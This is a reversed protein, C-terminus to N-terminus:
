APERVPLRGRVPVPGYGRRPIYLGVAGLCVEHPPPQDRLWRPRPPPTATLPRPRIRQDRRRERPHLRRRVRLPGMPDGAPAHPSQPSSIPSPWILSTINPPTYVLFATTMGANCSCPCFMDLPTIRFGHCFDLDIGISFVWISVYGKFQFHEYERRLLVDSPGFLPAMCGAIVKRSKCADLVAEWERGARMQAGSGKAAVNESDRDRAEDIAERALKGCLATLEFMRTLPTPALCDLRPSRYCTPDQEPALCVAMDPNPASAHRFLIANPPVAPPIANHAALSALTIEGLPSPIPKTSAAPKTTPPPPPQCIPCKLDVEAPFHSRFPMNDGYAWPAGPRHWNASEDFRSLFYPSVSFNATTTINAGADLYRKHVDKVRQPSFLLADLAARPTATTTIDCSPDLELNISGDLILPPFLSTPPIEKLKLSEIAFRSFSSHLNRAFSVRLQTRNNLVRVAISPAHVATRTVVSTECDIPVNVLRCSRCQFILFLSM